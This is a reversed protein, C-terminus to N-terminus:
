GLIDEVRKGRKAAIAEPSLMSVLGQVTA